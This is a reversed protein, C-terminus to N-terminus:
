AEADEYFTLRNGFPDAITIERSGWPQKVPKGPRAHKYQHARLGDLYDDIGPTEIRLQAGPCADGYHESLHLVCDGRQIGMYLPLDSEFRHEFVMEFGLFDIYFEKAKKEDFSRLVPIPPKM